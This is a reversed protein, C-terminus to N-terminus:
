ARAAPACYAAVGRANKSDSVETAGGCASRTACQPVSPAAASDIGVRSYKWLEPHTSSARRALPALRGSLRTVSSANSSMWDTRLALSKQASPCLLESWVKESRVVVGADELLLCRRSSLSASECPVAIGPSSPSSIRSSAPACSANMAPIIYANVRLSIGPAGYEGAEPSM